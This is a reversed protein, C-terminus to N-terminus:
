ASCCPRLFTVQTVLTRWLGSEKADATCLSHRVKEQRDSVARRRGDYDFMIFSVSPMNWLTKVSTALSYGLMLVSCRMTSMAM